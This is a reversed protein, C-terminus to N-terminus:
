RAWRPMPARRRPALRDDIAATEACLEIDRCRDLALRHLVGAFRNERWQGVDFTRQRGPVERGVLFGLLRLGRDVKELREAATTLAASFVACASSLV